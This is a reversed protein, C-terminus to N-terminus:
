EAAAAPAPPETARGMLGEAGGEKPHDHSRGSLVAAFTIPPPATMASLFVPVALTRDEAVRRNVPPAM